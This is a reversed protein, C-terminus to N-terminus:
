RMLEGVLPRAYDLFAQTVGNGDDNILESPMHREKGAVSDLSILEFHSKYGDRSREARVAVSGDTDRSVAYEVAERGVMEAERSDVPSIDGAYSRQLYGFTDARCRVTKGYRKYSAIKVATALVDALTGTGSLQVHGFADKKTGGAAQEVAALHDFLESVPTYPPRALEGRVFESSIFSVQDPGIIGESCAVVCRGYTQYVELIDTIIDDLSKAREPFYQLHPGDEPGRKCLAAAATLWGARRGMIINIKIGPLSRVDLDDGLIAHAVFRAASGYGPTHDNEVLDNDITKPVHFCRLEYNAAQAERNIISTAEATDNGGIYFFYHVDHKQFVEFARHCDEKSPKHRTSGIMAGPLSRHTSMPPASPTIVAFEEKLIGTIGHRAAIVEVGHKAAEDVAGFLTRNIVRTPGGGMAVVAKKM